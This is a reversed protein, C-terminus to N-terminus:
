KVRLIMRARRSLCFPVRGWGEGVLPPGPPSFSGNWGRSPIFPFIKEGCFERSEPMGSKESIALDNCYAPRPTSKSKLNIGCNAGLEILQAITGKRVPITEDLSGLPPIPRHSIRNSTLTQRLLFHVLNTDVYQSALQIDLGFIQEIYAFIRAYVDLILETSQVRVLTIQDDIKNLLPL